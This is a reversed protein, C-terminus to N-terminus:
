IMEYLNLLNKMDSFNFGFWDKVAHFNAAIKAILVLFWFYNKDTVTKPYKMKDTETICM